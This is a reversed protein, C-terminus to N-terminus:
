WAETQVEALVGDLDNFELTTPEAALLVPVILESSAGTVKVRARVVQKGATEIRVPVYALFDAPVDEQRVRLRVQYQGNDAHEAKWAVRYTPISWGYVWQNFFWDMPQGVHQEIVRQFDATTARRGRNAQYFDRMIAGFRDENMTRLDLLLVRLMNVVWAGKQYVIVNYNNDRPDGTDMRYGLWIPLSDARRALINTRWQDLMGFYKGSDKRRTQMYWLGAFDSLGESLWQDHYTAYDVGIGWWQHAVEHSRFVEDDGDRGTLVFTSYSLHILGPFAEGHLYPIETAYFHEVPPPGFVTGFFQVANAVDSGVHEEMNRQQLVEGAAALRQTLERHGRESWLVSIRSGDTGEVPHTDFIGLNFSANRIPHATAWTTTVMAGEKSSSVQEGVAALTMSRPYHFTLRFEAVDRWGLQQPYWAVSSKLYFWDGYRDILDGHYYLRLTEHAGATLTQRLRVWVIDHDKAKFVVAPEESDDWRASDLSIRPFLGFAVWPGVATDATIELRAAAAFGIDGGATQPLWSEIDYRAIGAAEVRQRASAAPLPDGGAPFQSVVESLRTYGRHRARVLLRVSETEYPDIMFILPDSGRRTMHAYFLGNSERNLLPRLVDPDLSRDDVKGLYSLMEQVGDALGDPAPGDAFSLHGRLERLTSDCFLLVVDTFPEALSTSKRFERLRQQELHTPPTFRFLGTGHFAVAVTRGGVPSLVVLQGSSLVLEGVDRRIVLDHVEAVQGDVPALRVLEAYVSDYETASQQTQAAASGAVFLTM